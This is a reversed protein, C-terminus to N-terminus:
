IRSLLIPCIPKGAFLHLTVRTHSYVVSSCPPKLLCTINMRIRLPGTSEALMIVVSSKNQCCRPPMSSFAAAMSTNIYFTRVPRDYALHSCMFM